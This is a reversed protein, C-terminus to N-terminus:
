APEMASKNTISDKTSVIRYSEISSKDFLVTTEHGAAISIGFEYREATPIFRRYTARFENEKFTRIVVPTNEPIDILKLSPEMESEM